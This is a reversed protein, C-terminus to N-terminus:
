PKCARWSSTSPLLGPAVDEFTQGTVPENFGASQSVVKALQGRTINNGPRFYPDNHRQLARRAAAPIATSSAGAPLAASTPTSPTGSLVDAFELTCATPTAAVTSTGEVTGTAQATGTAGTTVTAQPTNTAGTTSTPAPATATVSPTPCGGGGGVTGSARIVWNGVLTGGSLSDITGLQDNAGLNDFDPSRDDDQAAVWSRAQTATTDIPAPFTRPSVGGQNYVDSFGIYVDGPGSVAVNVAYNQFTTGNAVSITQGGVQSVKTADSPDGDGDTDLYVLLDIAKGVLAANNPWMISIQNLTLPYQGATPSFRNIWIAAFNETANSWGISNEATGDDLLLTVPGAPSYNATKGTTDSAGAGTFSSSSNGQNITVPKAPNNPGIQFPTTPVCVTATSTAIPTATSGGTTASPGPTCTAGGPSTIAMDDVRWGTNALSEDTALRFRVRTNQGALSSMNVTVQGYGTLHRDM